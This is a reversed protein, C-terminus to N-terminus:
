SRLIARLSNVDMEFKYLSVEDSSVLVLALTKTLPCVRVFINKFTASVENLDESIMKELCDKIHKDLWDVLNLVTIKDRCKVLIPIGDARFIGVLLVSLDEFHNLISKISSLM